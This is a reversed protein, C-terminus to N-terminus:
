PMTPGTIDNNSTDITINLTTANIIEIRTVDDDCLFDDLAKYGALNFSILLLNKEDYLNITMPKTTYITQLLGELTIM